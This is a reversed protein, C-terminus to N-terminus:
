QVSFPALSVVFRIRRRPLLILLALRLDCGAGSLEKGSLAPLVYGAREQVSLAESVERRHRLECRRLPSSARPCFELADGDCGGRRYRGLSM